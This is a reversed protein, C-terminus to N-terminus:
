RRAANRTATETPSNQSMRYGAAEIYKQTIQAVYSYWNWMARSSESARRAFQSARDANNLVAEITQITALVDGEPVLLANRGADSLEANSGVASTIVPVGHQISELVSLQPHYSLARFPLLVCLSEALLRALDIGSDYPFTHVNINPHQAALEKLKPTWDAWHNNRVAADFSIHPFKPALERFAALCVDAGNAMSADRWYLVRHPKDAVPAALEAKLDRVPGHRIVDAHIGRSRLVDRMFETSTTLVSIRKWWRRRLSWFHMPLTSDNITAVFSTKVDPSAVLAALDALRCSGHFHLVDYREREVIRRIQRVQAILKIPRVRSKGSYKRRADAVEHLPVTAPICNPLGEGRAIKTTILQVSHGADRLLKMSHVPIQVHASASNESGKEAAVDTVFFGIKVIRGREAEEEKWAVTCLSDPAIKRTVTRGSTALNYRGRQSTKM